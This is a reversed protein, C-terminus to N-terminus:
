TCFFQLPWKAFSFSASRTLWNFSSTRLRRVSSCTFCKVLSNAEAFCAKSRSLFSRTSCISAILTSQFSTWNISSARLGASFSTALGDAYGEPLPPLLIDLREESCEIPVTTWITWHEYNENKPPITNLVRIWFENRFFDVLTSKEASMYFFYWELSSM